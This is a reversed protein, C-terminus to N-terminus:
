ETSNVDMDSLFNQCSEQCLTLLSSTWRSTKLYSHVIQLQEYYCILNNLNVGQQTTNNIIINENGMLVRNQWTKSSRLWGSLSPSSIMKVNYELEYNERGKDLMEKLQASSMTFNNNEVKYGVRLSLDKISKSMRMAEQFKVISVNNTIVNMRIESKTLKYYRRRKLGYWQMQNRIYNENDKLRSKDVYTYKKNIEIAKEIRNTVEDTTEHINVEKMINDTTHLELKNVEGYGGFAKKKIVFSIIEDRSIKEKGEKNNRTNIKREMDTIMMNFLWKNNFLNCRRRFKQWQDITSNLSIRENDDPKGFFIGALMRAPYGFQSYTNDDNHTYTLRLFESRKKDIYMKKRNVELGILDTFAILREGELENRVNCQVDDGQVVINSLSVWLGSETMLKEAARLQAYNIASDFLSTWRWGSPIGNSFKAKTKIGNKTYVVDGNIILYDMKDSYFKVDDSRTITSIYKKLKDWCRKVMNHNVNADFTSQDLPVNVSDINEIIKNFQELVDKKKKQFLPTKTMGNFSSEFHYSLYSMIIYTYLDVNVVGRSKVLERKINVKLRQKTHNKVKYLLKKPDLLMSLSKKTNVFTNKLSSDIDQMVNGGSGSTGWLEVHNIFTEMTMNECVGTRSRSFFENLGDDFYEYYKEKAIGVLNIDKPILLWRELGQNLENIDDPAYDGLMEMNVFYKWNNNNLKKGGIVAENGEIKCYRGIDSLRSKMKKEDFDKIKKIDNIINLLVIQLKKNVKGLTDYYFSFKPGWRTGLKFIDKHNYETFRMRKIESNSIDIQKFPLDWSQDDDISFLKLSQSEKM